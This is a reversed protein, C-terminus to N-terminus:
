THTTCTLNRQRQAADDDIQQKAAKVEPLQKIVNDATLQWAQASGKAKFNKVDLSV